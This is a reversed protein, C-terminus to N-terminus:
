LNEAWGNRSSVFFFPKENVKLYSASEDMMVIAAWLLEGDTYKKLMGVQVYILWKCYLIFRLVICVISLQPLVVFILNLIYKVHLTAHSRGNGM